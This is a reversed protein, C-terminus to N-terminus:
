PVLVFEQRRSTREHGGSSVTVELLYRGPKQKGLGIEQHIVATSGTSRQTTTVHFAARGKGFLGLVRSVISRNGPRTVSLEYRYSAGRPVGNVEFYLQLPETARFEASPSIWITDGQVGSRWVPVSRAGVAFDSLSLATDRASSVDITDRDSIVGARGVEFGVRVTYHGRPVALSIVGVREGWRDTALADVAGVTTDATAAVTGDRGLIAARVRLPAVSDGHLGRVAESPLAFAVQVMPSASDGGVALVQAAVPLAAAYRHPWDDTTTGIRISRQGINREEAEIGSASGRGAGLMRPYIPDLNLRSRVIQEALQSLAADSARQRLKGASDQSIRVQRAGVRPQIPLGEGHLDGSNELRIANAYGVLDLASEVLRFDTVGEEAVFHFLLDGTARHYVWSENFAVGPLELSARDDPTGQRIYIVGRDDFDVVAPRYREIIDYHRHTSAVRYNRRAYDLRRYHEVLREGPLRLEDRDRLDWFRRLLTVRAPDADADFTKLTSDPLVFQMDSRYLAATAPDAIGLGHYWPDGGDRRGLRFRARAQELLAVADQPHLAVLEDAAAIASDPSGVEREIRARALLVEPNHSAPTAAAHRLADLAVGMRVNIRQRLATNTLEVLGRVFAPDVEASRAFDAASRTLADRGLANQLGRLIPIPSDGVGLEALGLGFWGYPWKAQLDVAWQFESAADEYHKHGALDGLRLAIFGLRLHATASDRLEHSARSILRKEAALLSVSDNVAALSDRFAEIDARQATSQGAAGIVPVAVLAALLWGASRSGM